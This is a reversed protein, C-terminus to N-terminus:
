FLGRRAQRLGVTGLEDVPEGAGHWGRGGEPSLSVGQWCEREGPGSWIGLGLRALASVLLSKVLGDSEWLTLRAAPCPPHSQALLSSICVAASLPM